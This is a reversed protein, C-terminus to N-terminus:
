QGIQATIAAVKDPASERGYNRIDDPDKEGLYDADSNVVQVPADRLLLDQEIGPQQDGDGGGLADEEKEGAPDDDTNGALNLKVQAVIEETM